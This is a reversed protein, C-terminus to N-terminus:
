RKSGIGAWLVQVLHDRLQDTTLEPPPYLMAGRVFSLIFQATLEPNKDTIEGRAIGARLTREILTALDRRAAQIGPDEPTLLKTRMVRYLDPFGAAFGVLESAIIRL